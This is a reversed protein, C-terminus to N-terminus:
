KLRPPPLKLLLYVNMFFLIVAGYFQNSLILSKPFGYFPLPNKFNWGVLLYALGLLGWFWLKNLKAAFSALLIFPFILWVFHHQWSLTDVLLLTIIFLSFQLNLDKKKRTLISVATVLCISIFALLWKRFELNEIIRSVFGALGQNYYIERGAVGILPFAIKNFWFGYLNINSILITALITFLIALASYCLIKWQKKLFFFLLFFAFITKFAITAGLLIGAWREKKQKYLYFSGLLSLLALTNNQGMGLTFKTPFSLFTLSFALLFYFWPVRRFSIKISLFIAGLVSASAVLVFIAQAAMYPLITLPLYYLLTNPPYSMGTFIEPNLYPNRGTPLDRATLWFVTFDPASTAIIRYLSRLIYAATLVFVFAVTLRAIKKVM